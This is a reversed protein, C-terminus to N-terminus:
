YFRARNDDVGKEAMLPMLMQSHYSDMRAQAAKADEETFFSATDRGNVQFVYTGLVGAVPGTIEGEKAAAVAGM